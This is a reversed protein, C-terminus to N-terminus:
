WAREANMRQVFEAITAAPVVNRVKKLKVADNPCVATCVGCGICRDEMVIMREKGGDPSPLRGIAGVPCNRQCILDLKCKEPDFSAMFNSRALSYPNNNEVLPRIMLCCTSCCSCFVQIREQLNGGTTVLGQKAADDMLELCEDRSLPRAGRYKLLYEAEEDFHFCRDVPKLCRKLSTRCSCAILAITRAQNIYTSAREYPAVDASSDIGAEYPFVRNGPYRSNFLMYHWGRDWLKERLEVMQRREDSDMGDGFTTTWVLREPPWLNVITQGDRGLRPYVTGRGGMREVLAEVQAESRGAQQALQGVSTRGRGQVPIHLALEAEEPSFTLRLLGVFEQRHPAPAGQDAFHQRLAGYVEDEQSM